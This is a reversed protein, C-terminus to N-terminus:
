FLFGSAPTGEPIEDMTVARDYNKDRATSKTVLIDDYEGATVTGNRDIDGYMWGPRRNEPLRAVEETTLSGDGDSDLQGHITRSTTKYEEITLRGDSGAGQQFLARDDITVPGQAAKQKNDGAGEAGGTGGSCAGALLATVMATGFGSYGRTM